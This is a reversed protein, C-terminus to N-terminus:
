ITWNNKTEAKQSAERKKVSSLVNNAIEKWRHEPRVIL